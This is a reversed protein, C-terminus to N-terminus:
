FEKLAKKIQENDPSVDQAKLLHEKASKKDGMSKYTMAMMYQLEADPAFVNEAKKFNDIATQNDKHELAMKGMTVYSLMVWPVQWPKKGPDAKAVTMKFLEVAENGLQQKKAEDTEKERKGLKIMGISCLASIDSPVLEQYKTLDAIAEDFNGLKQAASALNFYTKALDPNAKVASVLVQYSEKPNITLLISGKVYLNEANNPEIRVAMDIQRLAREYDKRHRSLDAMARYGAVLEPNLRLARQAYQYAEGIEKESINFGRFMSIGEALGALAEPYEDWLNLALQYEKIAEPYKDPDCTLFLRRAKSYHDEAQKKIPESAGEVGKKCAPMILLAALAVLLLKRMKKM